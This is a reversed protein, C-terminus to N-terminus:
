ANPIGLCPSNWDSVRSILCVRCFLYGVHGEEEKEKKLPYLRNCSSASNEEASALKTYIGLAMRM